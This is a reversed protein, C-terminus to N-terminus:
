HQTNMGKGGANATGARDCASLLAVFLAGNATFIVLLIIYQRTEANSMVNLVTSSNSMGSGPAVNQKMGKCLFRPSYQTSKHMDFLYFLAVRPLNNKLSAMQVKQTKQTKCMKGNGTWGFLMGIKPRLVDDQSRHCIGM